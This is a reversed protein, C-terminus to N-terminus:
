SPIGARHAAVMRGVVAATPPVAAAAHLGSPLSAKDALAHEIPFAPVSTAAWLAPMHASTVDPRLRAM